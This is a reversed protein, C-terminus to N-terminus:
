RRFEHYQLADVEDIVVLGGSSLVNDIQPLFDRIREETDSLLVIVPIERGFGFLHGTHINSTQGYGEIGRLVTAGALGTKHARRVIEHYVPRHHWLDGERVFISALLARRPQNM